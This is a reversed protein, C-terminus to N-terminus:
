ICHINKDCYIEKWKRINTTRHRKANFHYLYLGSDDHFIYDTLVKFCSDICHIEEAHELLYCYNFINVPMTCDFKVINYRNKITSTDLIMNRKPDDQIFVYPEFNKVHKHFIYLEEQINRQIYFDNNRKLFSMNVMDYYCLDYNKNVDYQWLQIFNQINNNKIFSQIGERNKCAIIDIQPMDNYMFSVMKLCPEPVFYYIKEYNYLSSLQRILSNCIVYSCLDYPHLVYLEDYQNLFNADYSIKMSSM